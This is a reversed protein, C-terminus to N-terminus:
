KIRALNPFQKLIDVESGASQTYSKDAYSKKDNALKCLKKLAAVEKIDSHDIAMQDLAFRYVEEASEVGMVDGVIEKVDQKAQELHKFKSTLERTLERRLSDMAQKMDAKDEKKDDDKEADEDDKEDMGKPRLMSCVSNIEDETMGKERLMKKAKEEPSEEESDMIEPDPDNEAGKFEEVGLVADLLSDLQEPSLSIEDMAMIKAKAKAKIKSKKMAKGDLQNDSVKVDHGARGQEVLALHNGIINTMYGDYAEGNFEGPEMVADFSYGCSLEKAGGWNKDAAEILAIAEADWFMLTNKLYPAEFVADTGTAGIILDKQPDDASVPVHKSVIQVSNFTQAAKELESGPRYIRYIKNPDLGLDNYRPIEYGYYPNVTEKSINSLGVRLRNDIDYERTSNTININSDM